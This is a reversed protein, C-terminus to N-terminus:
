RIFVNELPSSHVAIFFQCFVDASQVVGSVAFRAVCKLGFFQRLFRQQGGNLCQRASENRVPQPAPKEGHQGVLVIVPQAFFVIAGIDIDLIIRQFKRVFGCLHQFRLVRFPQLKDAAFQSPQCPQVSLHHHAAIDAVFRDSLDRFRQPYRGPRYFAPEVCAPTLNSFSYVRHFM